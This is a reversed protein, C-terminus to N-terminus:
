EQRVLLDVLRIDKVVVGLDAGGSGTYHVVGEVGFFLFLFATSCCVVFVLFFVRVLIKSVSLARGIDERPVINERGRSLTHTTRASDDHTGVRLDYNRSVGVPALQKKVVVGSVPTGVDKGTNKAISQKDSVVKKNLSPMLASEDARYSLRTNSLFNNKSIKQDGIYNLPEHAYEIVNDKGTQKIERGKDKHELISSKKVYWNRGVLRAEVKENRCLQGVYDKTYGTLQSARNSSIFNEGKFYLEDM